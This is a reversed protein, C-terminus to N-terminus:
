RQSEGSSEFRYGFRVIDEDYSRAVIAATEEDYYEGYSREPRRRGVHPVELPGPIGLRALVRPLDDKIDEIRIVGNLLECGNEDGAFNRLSYTGHIRWMRGRGRRGGGGVGETKVTRLWEPFGPAFAWPLLRRWVRNRRMEERKIMEYVSVLRDWPNRVTTFKFYDEFFRWGREDCIRRLEVPRIHTYLFPAAHEDMDVYPDLVHCVTASGCKPNSFFIFRYRHSIRM